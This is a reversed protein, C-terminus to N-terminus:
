GDDPPDEPPPPGLARPTIGVVLAGRACTTLTDDLGGQVQWTELSGEDRARAAAATLEALTPDDPAVDVFALRHWRGDLAIEFPPCGCIVPNHRVEYAPAEAAAQVRELVREPYSPAPEPEPPSVSACAGLALAAAAIPPTLRRLM